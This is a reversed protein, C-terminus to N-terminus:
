GATVKGGRAAQLALGGVTLGQVLVSFVVVVYTMVLFLEREPGAPVSFALAVSIAGRLGGWVMLRRTFPPFRQRNRLMWVPVAVSFARILLLLPVTLAGLLLALVSFKLAVVKLALLVFLFINLLEDTLEWFGEFKEHSTLTSPTRDNLLGIVLGAAVAALPASTHLHLATATCSTVVGLTILVEVVFDDMRRVAWWGILGLVTGLLLGGLAEQAFFLAVGSASLAGAHDGTSAAAVSAIVAFAVVGVGDNFLSEGAVLTEIRRPVKARKLVSLVSVPDTPSILAGFLLCYVLSVDLGFLRLLGYIAVGVLGTSLITSLLAFTVVPGRLAWLARSNIGLAGAFLLFSLVGQFVFDEFQIGQVLNVAMQAFPVQLEILVLLLLSLILGCVTVGISPPLKLFRNNLFALGGTVVVLLASLDLLSM